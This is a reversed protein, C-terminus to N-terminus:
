NFRNRDSGFCVLIALCLYLTTRRSTRLCILIALCLYLTTRRSTRLCILIALCLYLTTRRSTRLCILIALCLYLTTRRSTRLCILIALCLYLTTGIINCHWKGLPCENSDIGTVVAYWLLHPHGFVLVSHILSSSPLRSRLNKM